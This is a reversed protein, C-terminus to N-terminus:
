RVRKFISMRNMADTCALAAHGIVECASGLSRDWTKFYRARLDADMKGFDEELFPVLLTLDRAFHIARSVDAALVSNVDPFKSLDLEADCLPRIEERLRSAAEALEVEMASSFYSNSGGDQTSRSVVKKKFEALGNKAKHLPNIYVAAFISSVRKSVFYRRIAPGLLATLLGLM